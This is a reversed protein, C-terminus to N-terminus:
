GLAEVFAAVAVAELEGSETIAVVAPQLYPRASVHTHHGRGAMGGLEQIRAYVTTAGVTATALGPGAPAAPTFTVSRRLAGTILSPPEGPRSPTPTGRPHSTTGLIAQTAAVGALAMATAAAAPAVTAARVRLVRLSATAAGAADVSM